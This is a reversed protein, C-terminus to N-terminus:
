QEITKYKWVLNEPRCPYYANIQQGVANYRLRVLYTSGIFDGDNGNEDSEQTWGYKKSSSFVNANSFGVGSQYATTVSPPVIYLGPSCHLKKQVLVAEGIYIGPVVHALEAM